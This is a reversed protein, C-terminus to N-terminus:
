TRNKANTLGFHELITDGPRWHGETVEVVEAAERVVEELHDLIKLDGHLMEAYMREAREKLTM